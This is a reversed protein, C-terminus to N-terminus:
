STSKGAKIVIFVGIGILLIPIIMDARLWSVSEAYVVIALLLCGAAPFIAWKLRYQESALSYLYFFTLGVGLFFVVGGIDGNTMLNFEEVLVITGVTLMTGAPIIAWWHDHNRYYVMGFILAGAWLFAIGIIEEPFFSFDKFLMSVGFIFLFLSPIIAWWNGNKQRYVHFFMFSLLLFFVGGLFDDANDLIGINNMLLIFGFVVIAAGLYLGRKKDNM